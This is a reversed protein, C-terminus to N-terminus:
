WGTSGGSTRGSTGRCDRRQYSQATARTTWASPVTRTGGPLSKTTAVTSGTTVSVIIKWRKGPCNQPWTDPPVNTRGSFGSGAAVKWHDGIRAALHARTGSEDAILLLAGRKNTPLADLAERIVHKTDDGVYPRGLEDLQPM